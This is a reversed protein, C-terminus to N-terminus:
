PKAKMPVLETFLPTLKSFHWVKSYSREKDEFESSRKVPM